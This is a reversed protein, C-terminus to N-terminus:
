RGPISALTNWCSRYHKGPLMRECVSRSLINRMNFLSPSIKRPILVTGSYTFTGITYGDPKARAIAQPGLNGTAGPKNEIILPQDWQKEVVSALKRAFLDTTGGASSQVVITISKNPFDTAPGQQAATPGALAVTFFLVYIWGIGV